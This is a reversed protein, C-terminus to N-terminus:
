TLLGAQRYTRSSKRFVSLCMLDKVYQKESGVEYMDREAALLAALKERREKLLERKEDM